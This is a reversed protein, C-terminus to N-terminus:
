YAVNQALLKKMLKERTQHRIQRVRESTMNLEEAIEYDKYEKDYGYGASMAIIIQEREPLTNMAAKLKFGLDENHTKTEYDNYAATRHTFEYNTSNFTDETDEALSDISPTIVKHFETVDADLINYKSALEEKIENDSPFRGEKAFFADEIKKVKSLITTNNTTRVTINERVLFANIARRIYWVAFSCFRNDTKYNYRQFAECMGIAGVNVLDMILDGGNYRKAIALNFRQNRTIIENRISDQIKTEVEKVKLYESTGEAAKVRNQSAEYDMFLQREEEKTMVPIKRVESIFNDTVVNRIIFNTNKDNINM